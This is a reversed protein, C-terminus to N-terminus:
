IPSLEPMKTTNQGGEYTAFCNRATADCVQGYRTLEFYLQGFWCLKYMPIGIPGIEGQQHWQFHRSVEELTEDNWKTEITFKRGTPTEGNIITNM